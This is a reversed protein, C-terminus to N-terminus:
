GALRISFRIADFRTERGNQCFNQSFAQRPSNEVYKKDFSAGHVNM